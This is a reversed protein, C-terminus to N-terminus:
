LAVLLGTAYMVAVGGLIGAVSAPYLARGQRDRIAPVLQVIVQIIAGIGFGILLSVLNILSGGILAATDEGITGKATNVVIIAGSQLWGSPDISGPM